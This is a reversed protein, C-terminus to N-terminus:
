KGNCSDDGNKLFEDKKDEFESIAVEFDELRGIDLWYGKFPYGLVVEKQAMLKKILTPFDFYENEPIHEVAKRNFVYIGMSVKYHLVPKEIYDTLENNENAELVGLDIKVPKEYMAITCLRGHKKHYEFLDRFDINCLIDGNMVLFDDDLDKVLKLPAATGLPKDEHSYSIEMDWKEGNGFYAHLLHDLYGVALTIKNWGYFKLQRLIVELIPYDGIPM